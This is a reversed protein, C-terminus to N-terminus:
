DILHFDVRWHGQPEGRYAYGTKFLLVPHKSKPLLGECVRVMEKLSAKYEDFLEASLIMLLIRPAASGKMRFNYADRLFEQPTCTM